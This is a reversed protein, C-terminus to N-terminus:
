PALAMPRRRRDQPLKCWIHGGGRTRIFPMKHESCFQKGGLADLFEDLLRPVDFDVVFLGAFGTVILLGNPTKLAALRRELNEIPQRREKLSSWEGLGEPSKTVCPIVNFGAQWFRRALAAVELRQEQTSEVRGVSDGM